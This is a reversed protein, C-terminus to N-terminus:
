GGGFAKGRLKDAEKGLPIGSVLMCVRHAKKQRKLEELATSSRGLGCAMWAGGGMGARVGAAGRMVCHQEEWALVGGM